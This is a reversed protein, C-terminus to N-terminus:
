HLAHQPTAATKDARLRVGEKCEEIKGDALLADLADRVKKRMTDANGRIGNFPEGSMQGVSKPKHWEGGDRKRLETLVRHLDKARSASLLEKGNGSAKPRAEEILSSTAEFPVAWPVTTTEGHRNKGIEFGQIQFALPAAKDDERQKHVNIFVTGKPQSADAKHLTMGTDVNATLTTSGRPRSTEAAGTHHVILVHANTTRALYNANALVRGTDRSSNEDGDGLCLNLTDFVIMLNDCGHHDRFALADKALQGVLQDNSLDVPQDLVEFPATQAAKQSLYPFARNLVGKPAEAAIYLIAGRSVRMGCFDRGMAVHACVSAIIASKGLNSPGAFMSVQGPFLLHQVIYAPDPDPAHNNASITTCGLIQPPQQSATTTQFQDNATM